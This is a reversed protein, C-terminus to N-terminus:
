MQDEKVKPAVLTPRAVLVQPGPKVHLARIAEELFEAVKEAVSCDPLRLTSHVKGNPAVIYCVIDAVNYDATVELKYFKEVNKSDKAIRIRAAKDEPSATGNKNYDDNSTVVPIFYHNLVDIVKDNSLPGARVM